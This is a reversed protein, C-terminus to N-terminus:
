QRKSGSKCALLDGDLELVEALSGVRLGVERAGIDAKNLRSVVCPVAGADVGRSGSRGASDAGLSNRLVITLREEEQYEETGQSGEGQGEAM